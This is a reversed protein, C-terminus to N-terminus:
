WGPAQLSGGTSLAPFQRQWGSRPLAQERAEIEALRDSDTSTKEM